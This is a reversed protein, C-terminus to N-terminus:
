KKFIWKMIPYFVWFSIACNIIMTIIDALIIGTGSGLMKILYTYLPLKYLGQLAASGITIIIYAFIYWLAAKWINGSSKFTVKRQSIFNIIQAIAMTIQVALFYALGGGGGDAIAVSAYDFIYYPTSNINQGVQLIQFDVNILATYGFIWKFVPMLIMQLVTVGNCIIFFLIFEALSPNKDSFTKWWKIAPNTM